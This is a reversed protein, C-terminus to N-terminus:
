QLKKLHLMNKSILAIIQSKNLTLMCLVLNTSYIEPIKNIKISFSIETKTKKIIMTSELFTVATWIPTRTNQANQIHPFEASNKWLQLSLDSFKPLSNSYLTNFWETIVGPSYHSFINLIV